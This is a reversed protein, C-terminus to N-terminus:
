IYIIAKGFTNYKKKLGIKISYNLDQYINQPMTKTTYFDFVFTLLKKSSNIVERYNSKM